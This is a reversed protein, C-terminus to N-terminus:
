RYEIRVGPVRRQVEALLLGQSLQGWDRLAPSADYFETLNLYRPISEVEPQEAYQALEDAALEFDALLENLVEEARENPTLRHTPSEWKWIVSIHVGIRDALFQTTVGLAEHATKLEAGNM